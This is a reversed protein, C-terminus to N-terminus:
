FNRFILTHDRAHIRLLFEFAKQILKVRHNDAFGCLDLVADSAQKRAAVQQNFVHRANAFGRQRM